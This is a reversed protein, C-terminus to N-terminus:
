RLRQAPIRLHPTIQVELDKAPDELVYGEPLEYEHRDKMLRCSRSTGSRIRVELVEFKCSWVQWGRGADDPPQLLQAFNNGVNLRWISPPNRMTTPKSFIKLGSCIGSSRQNTVSSGSHSYHTHFHHQRRSACIRLSGHERMTMDSVVHTLIACMYFRLSRKCGLRRSSASRNSFSKGFLM